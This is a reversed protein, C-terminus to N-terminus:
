GDRYLTNNYQQSLLLLFMFLIGKAVNGKREKKIKRLLLKKFYTKKGKRLSCQRKNINHRNRNALSFMPCIFVINCRTARICKYGLFPM